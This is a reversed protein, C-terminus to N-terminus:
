VALTADDMGLESDDRLEHETIHVIETSEFGQGDAGRIRLKLGSATPVFEVSEADWAFSLPGVTGRVPGSGLRAIRLHGPDNAPGVLYTSGSRTEVRVTRLM